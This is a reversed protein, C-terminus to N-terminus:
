RVAALLALDLHRWLEVVEAAGASRLAARHGDADLYPPETAPPPGFRERRRADLRALEPDQALAERHSTFVSPEIGDVSADVVATVAAALAPDAVTPAAWDLDLLLGGPRLLRLVDALVRTTGDAGLMHLAAVSVVADVPRPLTTTWGEERLDLELRVVRGDRDGLVADGIAPLLPDLDVALVTADPRAAALRDALSGTGAGLEVITPQPPLARVAVDCLLTLAQEPVYAAM